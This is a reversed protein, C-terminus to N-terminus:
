HFFLLINFGIWSLIWFAPVSFYMHKISAFSTLMWLAFILQMWGYMISHMEVVFIMQTVILWRCNLSNYFQELVIFPGFGMSDPLRSLYTRSLTYNKMSSMWYDDQDM